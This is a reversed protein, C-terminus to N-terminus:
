NTGRGWYVGAGAWRQDRHGTGQGQCSGDTYCTPVGNEILIGLREKNEVAYLKTQEYSAVVLNEYAKTINISPGCAELISRMFEVAIEREGSTLYPREQLAPSNGVENEAMM